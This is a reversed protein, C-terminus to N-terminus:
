PVLCYQGSSEANCMGPVIKEMVENLLKTLSKEGDVNVQRDLAEYVQGPKVNGIVPFERTNM